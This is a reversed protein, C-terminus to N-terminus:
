GLKRGGVRLLWFWFLFMHFLSVSNFVGTKAVRLAQKRDDDDGAENGTSPENAPTQGKPLASALSKSDNPTTVSSGNSISLLEVDQDIARELQQADDNNLLELFGIVHELLDGMKPSNTPSSNGCKVDFM